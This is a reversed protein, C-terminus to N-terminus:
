DGFPSPYPATAESVIYTPKRMIRFHMRALYEGLVGLTLLQVGSFIAITSAIFPFGQVSQGTLMPRLVVYILVVFGFASTLFGLISAFQLPVVSYGTTTDVAFRLLKGFSYHSTGVVRPNHVVTESGFRASGWTLLADLSVNTGIDSAFADRLSTRFVRFSSVDPANEVGLGSALALRTIRGASRRFLSQEVNEPVGYIVDLGRENLAHVLRPIEEPPNQLDDDITAVVPFQAERLGAVLASHQGYNRGLRLGRVQPRTECIREIVSWTSDPSGDDVLVVEYAGIHGLAEDIREVLMSLYEASKYVPVVVSVGPWEGSM